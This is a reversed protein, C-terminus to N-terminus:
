VRNTLFGSSDPPTKLLQDNDDDDDYFSLQYVPTIQRESPLEESMKPAMKLTMM